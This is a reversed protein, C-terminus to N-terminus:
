EGGARLLTSPVARLPVVKGPNGSVMSNDPVSKRVVAGAAVRVNAGIRIDSQLVAGAGIMSTRGVRVNGSLIAGPGISVWDDLVCHHGVSASRNLLVGDGFLCGGGIVVGANVFGGAGIRLGPPLIATPDILSEALPFGAAAAMSALAERREPGFACPLAPLREVGALDAFDVIRVGFMSRPHGDLSIGFRFPTDRRLASIEYDVVLPSRVGFLVM